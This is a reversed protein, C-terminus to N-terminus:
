VNSKRRYLEFCMRGNHYPCKWPETIPKQSEPVGEKTLDWFWEGGKRKDVFFEQIYHWIKEAAEYYMKNGSHEYANYFGVVSEAQVWWVKTDNVEGNFKENNVSNGVLAERYINEALNATIYHIRQTIEKEGIVDVARDLLWSAEIDHGYSYLEAISNMQEDFFVELRGEGPHYVKQEFIGLIYVLREKVRLNGSLKYLETYAELLHLLTNMTKSANVGNESLKENDILQWQRDFAEQYGYKDVCKEEICAFLDMALKLAEQKQTAEYYAALAYIAFAQNYTHKMTEKVSGDYDLM